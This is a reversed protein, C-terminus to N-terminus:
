KAAGEPEISGKKDAPVDEMSAHQSRGLVRVWTVIAWRDAVPVQKRYSPMNRVGNTITDFIQGDRMEKVVRDSSLDVPPPFKGQTVVMGRGGGTQDHCPACYINFREEGRRILKEDVVVPRDNWRLDTVRQIYEGNAQKGRYWGDDENLHGIPITGDVLPRMARGDEFLPSAEGWQYKPQWDMDGLLHFPPDESKGGRCGVIAMALLLFAARRM